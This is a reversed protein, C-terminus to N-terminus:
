PLILNSCTPIILKCTHPPIHVHCYNGYQWYKSDSQEPFSTITVIWTSRGVHSGLQKEAVQPRSTLTCCPLLPGGVGILPQVYNLMLSTRCLKTPWTWQCVTLSINNVEHVRSELRLLQNIKEAPIVILTIHPWYSANEPVHRVTSLLKDIYPVLFAKIRLNVPYHTHCHFSMYNNLQQEICTYLIYGEVAVWWCHPNCHQGPLWLCYQLLNTHMMVLLWHIICLSWSPWYTQVGTCSYSNVFLSSRHISLLFGSSLAVSDSIRCSESSLFAKSFGRSPITIATALSLSTTTGNLSNNEKGSKVPCQDSM